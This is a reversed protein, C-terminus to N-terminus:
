LNKHKPTITSPILTNGVDVVCFRDGNLMQTGKHYQHITPNVVEGFKAMVKDIEESQIFKSDGMAAQAFTVLTGVKRNHEPNFAIFEKLPM